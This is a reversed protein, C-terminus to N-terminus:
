ETEFVYFAGANGAFTFTWGHATDIPVQAAAARPVLMLCGAIVLWHRM